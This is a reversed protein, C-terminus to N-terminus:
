SRAILVLDYADHPARLDDTLADGTRHVVRNAM